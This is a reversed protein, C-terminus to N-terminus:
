RGTAGLCDPWRGPLSLQQQGNGLRLGRGEGGPVDVLRGMSRGPARAKGPPRCNYASHILRGWLQNCRRSRGEVVRAGSSGAQLGAAWTCRARRSSQRCVCGRSRRCRRRTLSTCRVLPCSCSQVAALTPSCGQHGTWSPRCGWGRGCSSGCAAAGWAAGGRRRGAAEAAGCCCCSGAAQQQRGLQLEGCRPLGEHASGSSVAGRARVLYARLGRGRIPGGEVALAERVGSGSWHTRSGRRVTGARSAAPPLGMPGSAATARCGLAGTAALVWMGGCLAAAVPGDVQHARPQQVPMTVVEHVHRSFFKAAAM